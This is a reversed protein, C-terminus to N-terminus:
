ITPRLWGGRCMLAKPIVELTVPTDGIAEGDTEIAISRDVEIRSARVRIVGPVSAFEGAYLKPLHLLAAAMSLKPIISLDLYGDAMSGGKGVHLGAGCYRGNAAFGALTEVSAGGSGDPGDWRWDVVRAEYRGLSTFIAGLFSIMGGFRKSSGNVLQCVMANIGFGAVNICMEVRPVAAPVGPAVPFTLKIVDVPLTIGTSATWLADQLNKKIELSRVLDGGTGFPIVTFIARRNVPVGNVFLGNVVEHCTGDGGLAAIIDPEGGEAIGRAITTAHGAHETWIVRGQAFARSVAAEIGPRDAGARGGGARPNAIVTIREGENRAGHDSM